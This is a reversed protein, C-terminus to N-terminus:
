KKKNNENGCDMGFGIIGSITFVTLFVLLWLGKTNYGAFKVAMQSIIGALLSILFLLPVKNMIFKKM